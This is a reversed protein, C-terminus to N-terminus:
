LLSGSQLRQYRVRQCVQRRGRRRYCGQRATLIDDAAVMGGLIHLKEYRDPTRKILM